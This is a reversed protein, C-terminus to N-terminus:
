ANDHVTAAEGSEGQENEHVIMYAANSNKIYSHHVPNNKSTGVELVSSDM